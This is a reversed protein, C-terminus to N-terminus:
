RRALLVGIVIGAAAAIGVANWPHEHVYDDASKAADKAREVAADEASALKARAKGITAEARARAASVKEGAADKTARLLEEADAVVAKLDAVLQDRAAGPTISSENM